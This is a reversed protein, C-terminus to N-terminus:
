SSGRIAGFRSAASRYAHQIINPFHLEVSRASLIIEHLDEPQVWEATWKSDVPYWGCCWWKQAIPRFYAIRSPPWLEEFFEVNSASVEGARDPSIMRVRAIGTRVQGSQDKYEAAGM